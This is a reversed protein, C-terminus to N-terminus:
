RFRGEVVGGRAAVPSGALVLWRPVLCGAALRDSTYLGTLALGQEPQSLTARREEHVGQRLRREPSAVYNRRCAPSRIGPVAIAHVVAM